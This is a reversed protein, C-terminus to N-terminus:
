LLLCCFNYWCLWWLNDSVNQFNTFVIYICNISFVLFRCVWTSGGWYFYLDPSIMKKNQMQGAINVCTIATKINKMNAYYMFYMFDGYYGTNFYLFCGKPPPTFWTTDPVPLYQQWISLMIFLLGSRFVKCPSVNRKLRVQIQLQLRKYM